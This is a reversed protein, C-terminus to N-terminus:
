VYSICRQFRDSAEAKPFIEGVCISNDGVVNGAMLPSPPLGNTMGFSYSSDWAIQKPNKM